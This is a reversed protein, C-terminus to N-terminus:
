WRAKPDVYLGDVVSDSAGVATLRYRFTDIGDRKVWWAPAAFRRTLSWDDDGRVIGVPLSLGLPSIAEVVVRGARFFDGDTKAFMRAHPESGDICIPASTASSGSPLSMVSSGGLPSEGPVIAAGGALRWGDGGGEFDGDPALRYLDNDGWPSFVDSVPDSCGGAARAFGPLLLVAAAAVLLALLAHRVPDSSVPVPEARTPGSM